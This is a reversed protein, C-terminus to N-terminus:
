EHIMVFDPSLIQEFKLFTQLQRAILALGDVDPSSLVVDNRQLFYSLRQLSGFKIDV